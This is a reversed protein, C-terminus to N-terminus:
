FSFLLYIAGGYGFSDTFYLQTPQNRLFLDDGTEPNRVGAVDSHYELGGKVGLELGGPFRYGVGAEATIGYGWRKDNDQIAISFDRDAVGCVNCQNRQLSELEADIHEVQFRTAGFAYLGEESIDPTVGIGVGLGLVTEHVEQIANATIGPFNLIRVSSVIDTRRGTYSVVPGVTVEPGTGNGGSIRREYGAGFWEYDSDREIVAEIGNAGANIGTSGSPARNHYVSGVPTSGAAVTTAIRDDARGIRGEFTLGGDTTLRYTFAFDFRYGDIRDSSEAAFRENGPQIIVGAGVPPTERNELGGGIRIFAPREPLATRAAPGGAPANAPPLTLRFTRSGTGTATLTEVDKGDVTVRYRGKDLLFIASSDDDDEQAQVQAGTDANFLSIRAQAIPQQDQTIVVTMSTAAWVPSAFCTTAALVALM